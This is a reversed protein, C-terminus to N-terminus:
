IHVHFFIGSIYRPQPRISNLLYDSRFYQLHCFFYYFRKLRERSESIFNCVVENLSKIIHICCCINLRYKTHGVWCNVNQSIFVKTRINNYMSYDLKKLAVMRVYTCAKTGMIKILMLFIFWMPLVYTCLELM